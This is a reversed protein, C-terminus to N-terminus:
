RAYPNDVRYVRGDRVVFPFSPYSRFNELENQLTGLRRYGVWRNFAAVAQNERGAFVVDNGVIVLFVGGGFNM